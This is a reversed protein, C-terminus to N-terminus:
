FLVLQRTARLEHPRPPDGPNAALVSVKAHVEYEGPVLGSPGEDHEMADAMLVVETGAMILREDGPLSTINRVYGVSVDKDKKNELICATVRISGFITTDTEFAIHYRFPLSKAAASYHVGDVLSITMRM